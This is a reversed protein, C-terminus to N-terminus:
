ALDDLPTAAAYASLRDLDDVDEDAVRALIAADRDAIRRRRDRAVAEAVVAARSSAKGSAVQADIFEVLDDALRVTLQKTMGMRYWHLRLFM